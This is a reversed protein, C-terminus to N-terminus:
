EIVEKRTILGTEEDVAYDPHQEEFVELVLNWEEDETMGDCDPIEATTMNDIYILMTGDENVDYSLQM